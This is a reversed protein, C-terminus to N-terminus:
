TKRKVLPLFFEHLLVGHQIIVLDLEHKQLLLVLLSALAFLLPPPPLLL